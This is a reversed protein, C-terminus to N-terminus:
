LRLGFVIVDDLQENEGKWQEFEAKIRENQEDMPLGEVSLLFRKFRSLLYKRDEPGGYQDVFGDSFMYLVDNPELQISEEEFPKDDYGFGGGISRKTSKFEIVVGERVILLPRYAGSYTLTQSELDFSCLSLDMGDQQETEGQNLAEQVKKDLISMIISPSTVKNDNVIQNLLNHAMMAMFAGPVGHGTCDGVVLIAKGRTYSFWYFDGSVIDRPALFVFNDPFVRRIDDSLPLLAQQIRQAYRISDTIDQNKEEIIENREELAVTREHVKQELVRNQRQLRSSNMRVAVVFILLLLVAYVFYALSTRYWPPRVQFQFRAEAGEIGHVNRAQVRFTYVGESLNTYEKSAAPAWASWEEDFNELKYRFSNNSFVDYSLAAFEFRINHDSYPIRLMDETRQDFTVNGSNDLFVGGHVLSDVNLYVSSIIAKFDPNVQFSRNSNYRILGDNVVLWFVGRKGPIIKTPTYEKLQKFSQADWVYSGDAQPKAVGAEENLITYVDGNDHEFLSYLLSNESSFREGMLDPAPRFTEDEPHFRYLGNSTTFYNKGQITVVYVQDSPLGNEAGFKRVITDGPSSVFDVLMVGQYDTGLWLKGDPEEAISRVEETIGPLYNTANWGDPTKDLIRLGQIFGAFVRQSDLESRKLTFLRGSTIVEKVSDKREYVGRGGLIMSEGFDLMTWTYIDDELNFNAVRLPDSSENLRYLGLRTGIYLVDKHRLISIVTSEVGNNETFHSFPSNIDAVAIGNLLSMWLRQDRDVFLCTANEKLVGTSKNIVTEIVGFKNIIITGGRNALAFAFREDPLAVGYYIKERKLIENVESKFPQFDSGDYLFLGHRATGILIRNNPYPVMSFIPKDAFFEGNFLPTVEGNEVVMLGKERVLLYLKERVKFGLHPLLRLSDNFVTTKGNEYKFISSLTLFYVADGVSYTNWVDAIQSKDLTEPVLSKFALQGISDPALYGFDGQAGVFVRGKQDVDLSKVMSSTPILRWSSGNYELIGNNNAFFMTGQLDQTVWWNQYHQGYETSPIYRVFPAGEEAYQDSQRDNGNLDSFVM